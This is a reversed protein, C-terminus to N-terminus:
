RTLLQDRLARAEADVRRQEIRCLAVLVKCLAPHIAVSGDSRAQFDGPGFVHKSLFSLFLDDVLGRLPEMADLVLNDRPKDSHLLGCALDAGIANLSQRVQSELGGYLFNVCAQAPNTANRPSQYRTLASLRPGVTLWHAPWRARAKADLRLSLGRWAAFYGSAVKAELLRVGDITHLYPPPTDLHLWALAQATADLARRQDPLEPHKTATARQAAIKREIIWRAVVVDKGSPQASYQARRLAIDPRGNGQGPIGLTAPADVAPHVVALVDGRETLMSVTINQSACWKLAALSLSGAGGNTLWVIATVGHVGRHLTESSTEQTSHTRGQKLVLQDHQVFLGAGFGGLVLTRGELANTRYPNDEQQERQRAQQAQRRVALWDVVRQWHEGSARWEAGIEEQNFSRNTTPRNVTANTSMRDPPPASTNTTPTSTRARM